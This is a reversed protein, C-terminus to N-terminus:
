LPGVCITVVADARLSVLGLLLLEFEPLGVQFLVTVREVLHHFLGEVLVQVRVNHVARGEVLKFRLEDAVEFGCLLVVDSQNLAYLLVCLM